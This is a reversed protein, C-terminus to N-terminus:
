VMNYTRFWFRIGSASNLAANDGELTYSLVLESILTYSYVM